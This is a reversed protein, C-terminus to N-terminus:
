CLTRVLARCGCGAASTMASTTGVCTGYPTSGGRVVGVVCSLNPHVIVGTDAAARTIAEVVARHRFVLLLGNRGGNVASATLRLSARGALGIPALRVQASAGLGASPQVVEVRGEPRAPMAGTRRRASLPMPRSLGDFFVTSVRTRRSRRECRVGDERTWRDSFRQAVM